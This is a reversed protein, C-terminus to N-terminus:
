KNYSYKTLQYMGIAGKTQCNHVKNGRFIKGYRAICIKGELFTESGTIKELETLDEVRFNCQLWIELTVILNIFWNMKFWLFFYALFGKHFDWRGYNVYVLQGTITGAPAYANFAHVFNPHDDGKRLETEKYHSKFRENGITYFWLYFTTNILKSIFSSYNM